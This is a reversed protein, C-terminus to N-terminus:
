IGLCRTYFLFNFSFRSVYLQLDNNIRGKALLNSLFKRIVVKFFIFLYYAIKASIYTTLAKEIWLAKFQPVKTCLVALKNKEPRM